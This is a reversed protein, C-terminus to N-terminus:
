NPLPYTTVEECNDTENSELIADVDDACIRIRILSSGIVWTFDGTGIGDIWRFERSAGAALDDVLTMVGKEYSGDNDDDLSMHVYFPGTSGRGDNRVTATINQLWEASGPELGVELARLNPLINQMPSSSNFYSTPASYHASSGASTTPMVSKSNGAASSSSAAVSFFGDYCNNTHDLEATSIPLNACVEFTYGGAPLQKQWTVSLIHLALIGPTSINAHIVTNTGDNYWITLATNTTQTGDTEGLNAISIQLKTQGSVISRAVTQIAYDPLPAVSSSHPVFTPLSNSSSSRTPIVSKSGGAASSPASSVSSRTPIVSKSAGSTSSQSFSRVSSQAASSAASSPPTIGDWKQECGDTVIRNDDSWGYECSAISCAGSVCSAQAHDFTCTNGCAGCNEPDTLLNAGPCREDTPAASSGAPVITKIGNGEIWQVLRHMVTAAQARNLSDDPGFTGQPYGTMIGTANLVAIAGYDASTSSVDPFTQGSALVEQLTKGMSHLLTQGFARNIFGATEARTAVADPRFDSFSPDSLLGQLRLACLPVMAYHSEPVDPYERSCGQPIFSLKEELLTRYTLTAIQGRTLPDSAGFRGDDYGHVIGKKQLAFIAEAAWSPITDRFGSSVNAQIEIRALGLWLLSALVFVGLGM